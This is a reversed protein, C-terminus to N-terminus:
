RITFGQEGQAAADEVAVNDVRSLRPGRRLLAVLSDLGAGDGEAEGRVSGDPENQVFGALGLQEAKRQVFWRFGVGQVLGTVVFAIRRM